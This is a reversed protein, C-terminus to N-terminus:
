QYLRVLQALGCLWNAAGLRINIGLPLFLFVRTRSTRCRNLPTFPVIHIVRFFKKCERYFSFLNFIRIGEFLTYWPTYWTFNMM